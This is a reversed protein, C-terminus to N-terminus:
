SVIFSFFIEEVYEGPKLIMRSYAVVQAPLCSEEVVDVALLTQLVPKM